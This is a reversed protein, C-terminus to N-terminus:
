SVGGVWLAVDTAVQNAVMNLAAMVEAPNSSGIAAERVFPRQRIGAPTVLTADYRVVVRYPGRADLGFSLLQGSLRNGAVHGSARQDIVPVGSGAAAGALLRQFLRNPQESWQAGRLYQITTDSLQVPVRVTQLASAITPVDITVAKAQDIPQQGSAASAASAAPPPASLTYLTDPRTGPGGFQVLPGCGSVLALALMSVAPLAPRCHSM